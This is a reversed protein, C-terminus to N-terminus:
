WINDLIGAKELSISAQLEEYKKLVKPPLAKELNELTFGSDCGGSLYFNLMILLLVSVDFTVQM